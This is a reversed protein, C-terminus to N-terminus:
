SNLINKIDQGDLRKKQMLDNVIIEIKDMFPLLDHSKKIAHDRFQIDLHKPWYGDYQIYDGNFFLIKDSSSNKFAEQIFEREPIDIYKNKYLIYEIAFGGSATDMRMQQNTTECRARALGHHTNTNNILEIFKVNGGANICTIAHGAEHWCQYEKDNIKM